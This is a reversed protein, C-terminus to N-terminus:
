KQQVAGFEPVTKNAIMRAIIIVNGCNDYNASGDNASVVGEVPGVVNINAHYIDALKHRTDNTKNDKDTDYSDYGRVFNILDDTEADTPSSKNPFLHSKLADRNSTTFNNKCAGLGLVTLDYYVRKKIQDYKNGDLM